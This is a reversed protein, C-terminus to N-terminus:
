DVGELLVTWPSPNATLLVVHYGSGSGTPWVALCVTPVWQHVPSNPPKYVVYGESGIELFNSEPMYVKCPADGQNEAREWGNKTFWQDFYDIISAWGDFEGCCGVSVRTQRRWVYFKNGSDAWVQVIKETYSWDGRGPHPVNLEIYQPWGTLYFFGGGCILVCVFLIVTLVKVWKPWDKRFHTAM